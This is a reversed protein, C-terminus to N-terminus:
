TKSVGIDPCLRTNNIPPNNRIYLLVVSICLLIAPCSSSLLDPLIVKDPTIVCITNISITNLKSEKLIDEMHDAADKATKAYFSKIGKKNLLDQFRKVNQTIEKINEERISKLRKKIEELDIPDYKEYELGKLKAHIFHERTLDSTPEIFYIPLPYPSKLSRTGNGNM